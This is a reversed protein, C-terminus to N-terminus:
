GEKTLDITAKVVDIGDPVVQDVTLNIGEFPGLAELERGHATEEDVIDFTVTFELQVAIRAPNLDLVAMGDYEIENTEATSAGALARFVETRLDEAKDYADQGRLQGDTGVFIVVGFSQTITQRYDTGYRISSEGATDGLPVVFACPYALVTTQEIKAYEGAGSVRGEFGACRKRLEAIVPALKM